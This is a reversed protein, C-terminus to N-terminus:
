LTPSVNSPPVLMLTIHGNQDTGTLGLHSKCTTLCVAPSVHFWRKTDISIPVHQQVLQLVLM